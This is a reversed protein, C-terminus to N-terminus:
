AAELGNAKCWRLFWRMARIDAARISLENAPNWWYDSVEVPGRPTAFHWIASVKGDGLLPQEYDRWHERPAAECPEGIKDALAELSMRITGCRGGCRFRRPAWCMLEFYRAKSAKYGDPKVISINDNINM